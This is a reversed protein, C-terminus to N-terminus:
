TGGAFGSDIAYRISTRGKALLDAVETLVWETTLLGRRGRDFEIARQHYQDLRNPLAVFYHTDAFFASM